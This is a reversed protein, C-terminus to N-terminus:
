TLEATLSSDHCYQLSVLIYIGGEHRPMFDSVIKWANKHHLVARGRGQKAQAECTAIGSHNKHIGKADKMDTRPFPTLGEVKVDATILEDGSVLGEPVSETNGTSVWGGVRRFLVTPAYKVGTLTFSSCSSLGFHTRIPELLEKEVDHVFKDHRISFADRGLQPGFSYVFTRM